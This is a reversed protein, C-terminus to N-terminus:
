RKSSWCASPGPAPSWLPRGAEIGSLDVAHLAVPSPEALAAHTLDLGPPVRLLTEQDAVLWQAYGGPPPRLRIGGPAARLPSTAGLPLIECQGCTKAGTVVVSDGFQRGSVGPGVSAM